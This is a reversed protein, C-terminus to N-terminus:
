IRSLSYYFEGIEKQKKDMQSNEKNIRARGTEPDRRFTINLSKLFANMGDRKSMPSTIVGYQSPIGEFMMIRDATFDALQVDHEISIVA